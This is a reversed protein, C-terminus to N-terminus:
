CAVTVKVHVQRLDEDRQGLTSRLGCDNPGAAPRGETKSPCGVGERRLLSAEEQWGEEKALGMRPGNERGLSAPGLERGNWWLGWSAGESSVFGLWADWVLRLGM